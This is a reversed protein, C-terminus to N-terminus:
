RQRPHRHASPESGSHASRARSCLYAFSLATHARSVPMSMAFAHLVAKRVVSKAPSRWARRTSLSEWGGWNSVLRHSCFREVLGDFRGAIEGVADIDDVGGDRCRHLMFEVAFLMLDFQDRRCSDDGLRNELRVAADECIPLACTM